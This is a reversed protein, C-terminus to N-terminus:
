TKLMVLFIKIPGVDRPSVKVQDMEYNSVFWSNQSRFVIKSRSQLINHPMFYCTYCKWAWSPELIAKKSSKLWKWYMSFVTFWSKRLYTCKYFYSNIYPCSMLHFKFHNKYLITALLWKPLWKKHDKELVTCRKLSSFYGKKSLKSGISHGEFDFIGFIVGFKKM